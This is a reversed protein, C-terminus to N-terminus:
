KKAELVVETLGKLSTFDDKEVAQDFDVQVAFNEEIVALFDIFAMSDLLGSKVLDFDDKIEEPSIDFLNLKDDLQKIIFAKIDSKTM